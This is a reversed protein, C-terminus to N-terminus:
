PAVGVPRTVNPDVKVKGKFLRDVEGGPSEIELDYVGQTISISTTVSHPVTVRCRGQNDFTIWPSADMAVVDSEMTARMQLRGVYGTLDMYLGADDKLRLNLRFTAGKEIVLDRKVAAM